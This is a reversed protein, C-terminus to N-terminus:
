NTHPLKHSLSVKAGRAQTHLYHKVDVMVDPKSNCFPQESVFELVLFIIIAVIGLWVVVFQDAVDNHQLCNGDTRVGNM